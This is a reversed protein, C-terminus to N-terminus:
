DRPSPSTYLLCGPQLEIPSWDDVKRNAVEVVLRYRVPGLEMNKVGVHVAQVGTAPDPLLWLQTYGPQVEAVVGAYAVVISGVAILSALGILLPVHAPTGRVRVTAAGPVESRRLPLPLTPTTPHSPTLSRSRRSHAVWTAGLTVAGLAVLWTAARLGFPTWTLVLGSFAAVAISLGLSLAAREWFGVAPVAARSIAYGPIVLVAIVGVIGRAAALGDGLLSPMLGGALLAHM